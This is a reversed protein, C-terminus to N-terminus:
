MRVKRMVLRMLSSIRSTDRPGSASFVSSSPWYTCVGQRMNTRPVHGAEPMTTFGVVAWMTSPPDAEGLQDHGLLQDAATRPRVYVFELKLVCPYQEVFCPLM